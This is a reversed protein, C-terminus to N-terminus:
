IKRLHNILDNYEPCNLQKIFDDMEKQYKVYM